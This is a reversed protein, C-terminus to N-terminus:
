VLSVVAVNHVCPRSKTLAVPTTLYEFALKWWRHLQTVDWIALLKRKSRRESKSENLSTALGGGVWSETCRVIERPNQSSRRDAFHPKWQEVWIEEPRDWRCSWQEKQWDVGKGPDRCQVCINVRHATNRGGGSKRRCNVIVGGQCGASTQPKALISLAVVYSGMEVQRKTLFSCQLLGQQVITM